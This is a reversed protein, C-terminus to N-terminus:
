LFIGPVSEIVEGTDIDVLLADNYYRVWRYPGWVPPLHFAAPDDIWYQESLFAAALLAGAALPAYAYGGFPPDYYGLRFLERHRARWGFWDYRTDRHWTTNWGQVGAPAALAATGTRAPVSGVPVSSVPVGNAVYRNGHAQAATSSKRSTAIQTAAAPNSHPSAARATTTRAAVVPAPPHAASQATSGIIRPTGQTTAHAAAGILALATMALGTTTVRASSSNCLQM